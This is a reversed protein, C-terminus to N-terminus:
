PVRWYTGAVHTIGDRCNMYYLTFIRGDPLLVSRSYGLDGGSGWGDARLVIEDGWTHGGDASVRARIGMRGKRYGYTNVLRDDPLRLVDCPYGWFGADRAEDWTAGDDKSFAIFTNKKRGVPSPRLLAGVEGQANEFLATESYGVTKTAKVITAWHWTKGQDASRFVLSDQEHDVKPRGYIANMVVGKSTVLFAPPGYGQMFAMPPTPFTRRKWDKGDKSTNVYAPRAGHAIVGPRVKRIWLGKAELEARKSEPENKWGGAGCSLYEGWPMWHRKSVFREKTRSWTKGADTSIYTASGGTGDIHSRRVRTGFRVAMTNGDHKAFNPFCAYV